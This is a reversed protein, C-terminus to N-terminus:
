YFSAATTQYPENLYKRVDTITNKMFLYINFQESQKRRLLALM